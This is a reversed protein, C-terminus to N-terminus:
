HPAVRQGVSKWHLWGNVILVASILLLGGAQGGPTQFMAMFAGFGLFWSLVAFAQRLYKM